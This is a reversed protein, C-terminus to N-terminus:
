TNLVSQVDHQFCPKLITAVTQLFPRSLIQYFILLIKTRWQMLLMKNCIPVSSIAASESLYEIQGPRWTPLQEIFPYTPLFYWAYNWCLSAKITEMCKNSTPNKSTAIWKLVDQLFHGSFKRIEYSIKLHLGCAFKFSICIM